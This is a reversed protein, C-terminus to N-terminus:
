LAFSGVTEIRDYTSDSHNNNGANSSELQRTQSSSGGLAGNSSSFVDVCLEVSGDVAVVFDVDVMDSVFKGHINGNGVVLAVGLCLPVVGDYDGHGYVQVVKCDEEVGVGACDEAVGGDVIGGNGEGASVRINDCVEGVSTGEHGTGLHNDVSVDVSPIASACGEQEGHPKRTLPSTRVASRDFARVGSQLYALQQKENM